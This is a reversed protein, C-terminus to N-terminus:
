LGGVFDQCISVYHSALGQWEFKEKVLEMGRQGMKKRGEKDEILLTIKEALSEFDDPQYFVGTKRDEIVEELAPLRPAVVPIGCAWYEFEKLTM